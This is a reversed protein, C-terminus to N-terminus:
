LMFISIQITKKLMYYIATGHGYTDNIDSDLIYKNGCKAISIGDVKYNKLAPHGMEVGSDILVIDTTIKEM